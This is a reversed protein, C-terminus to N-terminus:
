GPRAWGRRRRRLWLGLDVPVQATQGPLTAGDQEDRRFQGLDQFMGIPHHDKPLPLNGALEIGALGARCPDGGGGQGPLTRPLRGGSPGSGGHGPELPTGEVLQRQQQTHRPEAQPQRDGGLPEAEQVQQSVGREPGNQPRAAAETMTPRPISIEIPEITARDAAEVAM